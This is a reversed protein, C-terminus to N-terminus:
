LDEYEFGDAAMEKIFLDAIEGDELRIAMKEAYERLLFVDGYLAAHMSLHGLKQLLWDRPTDWKNNGM